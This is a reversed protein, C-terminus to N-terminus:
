PSIPQKYYRQTDTGTQASAVAQHRGETGTPREKHTTRATESPVLTVHKRHRVYVGCDAEIRLTSGRATTVTGTRRDKGEITPVEFLVTDGQHIM